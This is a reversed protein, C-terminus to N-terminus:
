NLRVYIIFEQGMEQCSNKEIAMVISVLYKGITNIRNNMLTM